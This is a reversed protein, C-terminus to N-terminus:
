KEYKSLLYKYLSFDDFKNNKSCNEKGWLPQLNELDWCMKFEIDSQSKYNFKSIPIIHDLHWKGYNEWSMDEKFQKELHSKLEHISYNLCSILGNYTVNKEKFTQWISTRLYKTLRYTPDNSKKRESNKQRIRISEINNKRYIKYKEKLNGNYYNELYWEKRYKKLEKDNKKFYRKDSESKGGAYRQGCNFMKVNYEKLIKLVYYRNINYKKALIRTGNIGNKYDDIILIKFNNLIEKYKM